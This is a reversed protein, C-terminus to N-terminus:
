AHAALHAHFATNFADPHEIFPTHGCEALVVEQYAGGHAQYAELVARTQSIMPQSPFVEAGPYGPIVGYGGLTGMDFLSTDSVIQDDAGRVWLVAPKPAIANLRGVDGAYLPSLANSPGWVGPAVFPWHASPVSDGPYQEPGVHESLVSSLLEEERAPKFPPKWYFSNMVVRPSAQPDDTSRDGAAMLQTFKANVIGGGSGAGDPACLEGNLGKCGGFGYPSGPAAQTVSILRHPADMMMRWVVSGGLSHGVVHAREIGLADLLAFADDALDGMGRRADIRAARDADGYGRQDPAIGRYGAPLALMTEEWFTASSANGHIFLVPIGDDAGSFLVRTTLRASTLTRPTIGPLTPISM